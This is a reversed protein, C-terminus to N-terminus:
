AKLLMLTGFITTSASLEAGNLGQFVMVKGTATNYCAPYMKPTSDWVDARMMCYFKPGVTKAMAKSIDVGGTAYSVKSMELVVTNGLGVTFSNRAVIKNLDATITITYTGIDGAAVAATIVGDTDLDTNAVAIVYITLKKYLDFPAADETASGDVIKKIVDEADVTTATTGTVDIQAFPKTGVDKSLYIYSKASAYGALTRNSLETGYDVSMAFDSSTLTFEPYTASAGAGVKLGLKSITPAAM